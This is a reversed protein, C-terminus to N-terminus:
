GDKLETLTQELPARVASVAGIVADYMTAAGVVSVGIRGIENGVADMITDRIDNGVSKM